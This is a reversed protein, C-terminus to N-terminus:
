CPGELLVRNYAARVAEAQRRYVALFAGGPDAGGHGLRRALLALPAGQTPLRALTRGHVLRLRNEVRRHFLYGMRLTRGDEPSLLGEAALAALADLTNPGRVAPLRAGHRLQLYQTAFEVDVLGGHGAKPDLEGATEGAVEVEIRQRLRHIEEAAGEPLPRGYVLPQVVSELLLAGFRGDGAVARAKVLAQREWLQARRGHHERFAAESVVLTGQNGSPRLRADVQYLRGERLQVTLLSLLRQVLRAFYEPHAVSGRTGGATEEDAGGGQYVFLLDLDSHYGLEKGGLKGLGLVALAARGGARLRPPGFRERVEAEAQFLCADLLGDALASLQAAVEPVDLDGSIDGLGIRLVEENKFRRMASLREEDLPSRALRGGLEAAILSLPKHPSGGEAQVLVDLLEPNRVFYGSLFASQGFLGILRRAVAPRQLLLRLYGLPTILNGLFDALFFLAQDPDPSRACESLLLAAPVGPGPGEQLGSTRLTRGLRELSRLAGEADAFGRASLAEHRRADDLERDLAVALLPEDPVEHRATQGLLTRFAAAVFRRHRELERDLAETSPLGLSRALRLRDREASPLTQTQQEEVMQLRNEVRRLFVYADALAEADRHTLLGADALRGLAPLTQGARLLPAKGGHLLQLAVVFFEVERIGGPGLKVDLANAKGRLDIEAKLARLADVAGFDLSRRWLFPKLGLLLAEALADDGAVGRGKVWAAREWTRGSREYYQLAASLSLVAPGARGEPRLGLDVRFCFGDETVLSLARTLGEALRSYYTVNPVSGQTGGSTEGDGRYLYVLDVDSSYNLDEGGLKGLGLVCFGEPEPTGHRARLSAELHPLAARLVAEALEAQERGVEQQPASAWVERAALRLLCRAKFRRLRRHLTEKDGLPVRSLAGRAAALTRAKPWPRELRAGSLWRLLGPRLSLLRAVSESAQLLAVALPGAGPAGQLAPLLRELTSLVYAPEFTGEAAEWLAQAPGEGLAQTLTEQSRTVALARPGLSGSPV